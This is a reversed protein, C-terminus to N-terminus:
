SGGIGLHSTLELRISFRQYEPPPCAGAGIRPAPVVLSDRFTMVTGM